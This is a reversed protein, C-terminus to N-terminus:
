SRQNKFERKIQILLRHFKILEPYQRVHDATLNSHCCLRDVIISNTLNNSRDKKNANRMAKVDERQKYKKVHDKNKANWTKLKTRYKEPNRARDEKAWASIRARDRDKHKKNYEAIHERNKEDWDKKWKVVKEKNEARYKKEQKYVKEKNAAKYERCRKNECIKCYGRFYFRGRTKSFYKGYESLPKEEGCKTCVKTTM